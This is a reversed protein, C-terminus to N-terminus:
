KFKTLERVAKTFQKLVAKKRVRHSASTSLHLWPYFFYSLILTIIFLMIFGGM